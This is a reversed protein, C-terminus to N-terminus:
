QVAVGVLVAGRDLARGVHGIELGAQGDAGAVPAEGVGIDPAGFLEFGLGGALIKARQREAHPHSEEQLAPTRAPAKPLRFAVTRRRAWGGIGALVGATWSTRADITRAGTRALRLARM